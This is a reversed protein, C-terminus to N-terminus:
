SEPILGASSLFSRAVEQATKGDVEVEYNLQSMQLNDIKVKNLIEVVDPHDRYFDGRLIYVADFRMVANKDDQLLVLGLRTIGSDTTYCHVIDAEGNEVTPYKLAVAVALIDKFEFDYFEKLLPYCDIRDYFNYDAVLTYDASVRALDSYTKLNHRAALEPTVALDYNNYFGMKDLLKIDYEQDAKAKVHEYIEDSERLTSSEEGIVPLLSSAYGQWLDAHGNELAEWVLVDSELEVVEVTYDTNEEIVYQTVYALITAETWVQAALHIVKQDEEEKQGEGSCAPLLLLLAMLLAIPRIRSNM